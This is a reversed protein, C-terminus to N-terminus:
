ASSNSRTMVKILMQKVPLLLQKLNAREQSSLAQVEDVWGEVDDEEDIQDDDQNHEQATTLEEEEIDSALTLLGREDDNLEGRENDNPKTDFQKM